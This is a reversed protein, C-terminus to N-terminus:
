PNTIRSGTIISSANFSVRRESTERSPREGSARRNQGQQQLEPHHEVDGAQAAAGAEGLRGQEHVDQRVRIARQDHRQEDAEDSQGPAFRRVGASRSVEVRLCPAVSHDVLLRGRFVVIRTVQRSHAGRADASGCEARHGPAPAAPLGSTAALFATVTQAAATSNHGGLVANTWDLPFFIDGTRQIEALM